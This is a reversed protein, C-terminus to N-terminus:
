DKLLRASCWQRGDRDHTAEAWWPMGKIWTETTRRSPGDDHKKELTMKLADTEKGDVRIRTVDETQRCRDSSKFEVDGKKSMRVYPEQGSQGERFSPFALPLVGAWDTADTPGSEFRASAEVSEVKDSQVRLREVVSLTNDSQRLYVRYFEVIDRKPNSIIEKGNVAVCDIRIQWCREGDIESVSEVLFQYTTTSRTAKWKVLLEKPVSPPETMKDVDVRWKQGVLWTAKFESRDMQGAHLHVNFTFLALLFYGVSQTAFQWKMRPDEMM